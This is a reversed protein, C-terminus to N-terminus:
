VRVKPASTERNQRHLTPRGEQPVTPNKKFLYRAIKPCMGTM